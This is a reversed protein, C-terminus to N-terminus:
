KSLLRTFSGNRIGSIGMRAAIAGFVIGIAQPIGVLGIMQFIDGPLGGLYNFAASKVGDFMLDVGKYTVFEFGVALLLRGAFSGALNVLLSGLALFFAPM